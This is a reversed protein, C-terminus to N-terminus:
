TNLFVDKFMKMIDLLPIDDDDLIQELRALGADNELYSDIWASDFVHVWHDGSLDDQMLGALTTSDAGQFGVLLLPQAHRHYILASVEISHNQIFGSILNLWFTAARTSNGGQPLPLILAKNLNEAGQHIVPQLLLGLAILGQIFKGDHKAMRLDHRFSGVTQYMLYTQYELSGGVGVTLPQSLCQMAITPDPTHITETNLLRTSQWLSQLLVPAQGMFQSPKAPQMRIGTILPFRRHSIDRSTTLTGALALPMRTSCFVFDLPPMQDYQSQWNVYTSQAELAQAVWQDLIHLMAGHGASRIFDGRAPCKGFYFPEAQHALHDNM